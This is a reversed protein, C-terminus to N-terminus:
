GAPATKMETFLRPERNAACASRDAIGAPMRKVQDHDKKLQDCCAM